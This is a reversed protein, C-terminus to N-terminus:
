SRAPDSGKVSRRSGNKSVFASRYRAAVQIAVVLADLDREPFDRVLEKQGKIKRGFEFHLNPEGRYRDRLLYVDFCIGSVNIRDDPELFDKLIGLQKELRRKERQAKQWQRTSKWKRARRERAIRRLWM